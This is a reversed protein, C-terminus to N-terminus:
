IYEQILFLLAPATSEQMNVTLKKLATMWMLITLEQKESLISSIVYTQFVLTIRGTDLVAASLVIRGTEM